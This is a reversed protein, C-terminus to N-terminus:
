RRGRQRVEPLFVGSGDVGGTGKGGFGQLQFRFDAVKDVFGVAQRGFFNGQQPLGDRRPHGSL